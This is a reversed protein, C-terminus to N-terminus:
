ENEGGRRALRQKVDVLWKKVLDDGDSRLAQYREYHERAANLDNLYIEYLIGINLHANAYDPDYDLAKLYADKADDFRGMRRYVVGLGNYIEPQEPALAAARLLANEASHLNGQKLEILGINVYPAAAEPHSEAAAKFLKLAEEDNGAKLADIATPYDGTAPAAHSDIATSDAQPTHRLAACGVLAGLTAAALIIRLIKDAATM